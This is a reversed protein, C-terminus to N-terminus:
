IQGIYIKLKQPEKLVERVRDMNTSLYQTSVHDLLKYVEQESLLETNTLKCLGELILTFKNTLSAVYKTLLFTPTDQCVKRLFLAVNFKDNSSNALQIADLVPEHLM